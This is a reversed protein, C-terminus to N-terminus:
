STAAAVPDPRRQLRNLRRRVRMAGWDAGISAYMRRASRLLDVAHDDEHRLEQVRALEEAAGAEAWPDGCSHFTELAESLFLAAGDHYGQRTLTKGAEQRCHARGYRHSMEDFHGLASLALDLADTYRGDHRATISRQYNLWGVWLSQGLEAAEAAAVALCHEAQQNRREALLVRGRAYALGARQRPETRCLQDARDLLPHGRSAHSSISEVLAAERLTRISEIRDPTGDLLRRAERLSRRARGLHRLRRHRWADIRWARIMSRPHGSRMPLRLLDDVEDLGGLESHLEALMATAEAEAATDRLDRAHSIVHRTADFAAALEGQHVRGQIVEFLDDAIPSSMRRDRSAQLAREAEGEPAPGRRDALQRAYGQVHELIRYLQVGAADRTFRELLGADTLRDCLLWAESEEGGLVAALEWPEFQRNRIYGLRTLAEQEPSALMAYSVNLAADFTGGQRMRGLAAWLRTNPRAALAMGVLQIALPHGAAASVILLATDREREVREAGIIGSLMRVAPEPELEALPIDFTELEPLPARATILVSCWSTDPLLPLVLDASSVDDFVVLLRRRASLRRALRRYLAEQRAPKPPVMRDPGALAHVFRRRVTRVSKELAMDPDFQAFLEGGPFQQAVRHAVYLAFATKGVGAEGSVLAIRRRGDWRGDHEDGTLYDCLRDVDDERGVMSTPPPPLNSPAAPRAHRLQDSVYWGAAGLLYAAAVVLLVSVGPRGDIALVAAAPLPVGLLVLVASRYPTVRDLLLQRVM